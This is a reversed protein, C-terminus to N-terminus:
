CHAVFRLCIKGKQLNRELIKRAAEEGVGLCLALLWTIIRREQMVIARTKEAIENSRASVPLGPRPDEELWERGKYFRAFWRFVQACCDYGYVNKQEQYVETDTKGSKFYFKNVARQEM